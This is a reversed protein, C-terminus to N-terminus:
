EKKWKAGGSEEATKIVSDFVEVSDPDTAEAEKLIEKKDNKIFDVIQNYVQSIAEKTKNDATAFIAEADAIAKTSNEQFSEVAQDISKEIAGPLQKLSTKVLDGISPNEKFSEGILEIESDLLKELEQSYQKQKIKGSNFRELLDAGQEELEARKEAWEPDQKARDLELKTIEQFAKAEKRSFKFKDEPTLSKKGVFELLKTRLANADDSYKEADTELLSGAANGVAKGANGVAKGVAGAADGISKAANPILDRPLIQGTLKNVWVMRTGTATKMERQEPEVRGGNKAEKEEAMILLLEIVTQASEIKRRIHSTDIPRYQLNNNLPM